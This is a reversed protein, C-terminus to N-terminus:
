KLYHNAKKQKPIYMEDKITLLLLSSLIGIVVIIIFLPKFGFKDALVRGIAATAASSLDVSTFYMGWEKGEHDKDVHRTFIGM